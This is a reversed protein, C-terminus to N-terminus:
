IDRLGAAPLKMEFAPLYAAAIVSSKSVDPFFQPDFRSRHLKAMRMKGKANLTLSYQKGRWHQIMTRLDSPLVATTVPITLGSPEIELEAVVHGGRSVVVRDRKGSGREVAIDGHDKPTGWHHRGNAVAEYSSTFARLISSYAGEAFEFVGAIILERYPGCATVDYDFFLLSIMEGHRKGLLSPPVFLEQDTLAGARLIVVYGSGRVTWPVERLATAPFREDHDLLTTEASM